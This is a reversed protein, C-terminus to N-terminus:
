WDRFYNFKWSIYTNQDSSNDISLNSDGGGDVTVMQNLGLNFAVLVQGSGLIDVLLHVVEQGGGSGLVPHSEPFGAAANDMLDDQLVVGEGTLQLGPSIAEM